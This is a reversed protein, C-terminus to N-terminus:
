RKTNKSASTLALAFHHCKRGKCAIRKSKLLVCCSLFTAMNWKLGKPDSAAHTLVLTNKATLGM